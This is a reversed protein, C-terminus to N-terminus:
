AGGTLEDEVLNLGLTVGKAFHAMQSYCIKDDHCDNRLIELKSVNVGKAYEQLQDVVSLMDDIPQEANLQLTLRAMEVRIMHLGNLGQEHYIQYGLEVGVSHGEKELAEVTKDYWSTTVWPFGACGVFLVVTLLMAVEQGRLVSRTKQSM